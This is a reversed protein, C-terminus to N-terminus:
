ASGLEVVRGFNANKLNKLWLNLFAILAFFMNIRDNHELFGDM